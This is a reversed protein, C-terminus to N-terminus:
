PTRVYGREQMCSGFAENERTETSFAQTRTGLEFYGGRSWDEQRSVAIDTDINRDRALAQQAQRRCQFTDSSLTGQDIGPKTWRVREACGGLSAALIPVILACAYLVRNASM